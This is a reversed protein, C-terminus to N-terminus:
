HKKLSELIINKGCKANSCRFMLCFLRNFFLHAITLMVNKRYTGSVESFTNKIIQEREDFFDQFTSSVFVRLERKEKKRVKTDKQFQSATQLESARQQILQKDM